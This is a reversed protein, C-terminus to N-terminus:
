FKASALAQGSNVLDALAAQTQPINSPDVYGVVSVQVGKCAGLAVSPNILQGGVDVKKNEDLQVDIRPSIFRANMTDAIVRYGILQSVSDYGCSASEDESSPGNIAIITGFPLASALGRSRAAIVEPNSAAGSATLWPTPSTQEPLANYSTLTVTYTDLAKPVSVPLPVLPVLASPPLLSVNAAIAPEQVSSIQDTTMSEVNASSTSVSAPVTQANAVLPVLVSNSLLLLALVSGLKKPMLSDSLVFSVL